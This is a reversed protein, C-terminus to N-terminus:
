AEFKKSLVEDMGEVLVAKLEDKPTVVCERGIGGVGVCGALGM